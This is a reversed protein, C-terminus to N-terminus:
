RSPAETQLPALDSNAPGMFVKGYRDFRSGHCPCDWTKESSNWAVIGALHPCVASREHVVGDQDKFCAVKSLGRRMIAGEGPSLDEVSSIEGPTLWDGYQVAVNLNEKLFEAGAYPSIRSPNYLSEWPNARGCILDTILIAAVTGHTLGNGSDGTCVYVNDADGPNRGIYAMGDVPEFVEGSWRYLLPGASPFRERTWEELRRYREEFDSAQGTKHDEGGVILVDREADFPALRVYHYMELTDWALHHPITDKPVSLGVVYTNYGAQKTHIAVRDNFPTNTAVVIHGAKVTFGTQTEVRANEGGSLSEAKSHTFIRGGSAEVARALGALYKLPHFQAQRPFLLCRGSDFDPWPARGTWSVALGSRVAAPHEKDLEGQPGDPAQVLYGEVYRFECAIRERDVIEAIREIAATHSSAAMRAGQEGHARELFYFRDDLANSLHASTRGTMGSGLAGDELLVVSRGEQLLLYATTLGAIGGGIVCVETEVDRDLPATTLAPLSVGELWHSVTSQSSDEM